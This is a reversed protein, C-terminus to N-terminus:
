VECRSNSATPPKPNTWKSLLSHSFEYSTFIAGNVVFARAMTAGFGKFFVTTGEEKYSKLACDLWGRYPSGKAATAQIRSKIVDFVYVSVWSLIGALGGAAWLGFHNRSYAEANAPDMKERCANYVTYYIGYSPVDRITTITAGRFLGTMGETCVIHKAMTWPGQYGSLGPAATQLQLRIKLLDVPTVVATQVAGAFCGALFIQRYPQNAATAVENSSSAFRM